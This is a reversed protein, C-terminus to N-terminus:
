QLTCLKKIKGIVANFDSFSLYSDEMPENNKFTYMKSQAILLQTVSSVIDAVNAVDDGFGNSWM